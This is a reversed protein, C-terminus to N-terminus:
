FIPAVMKKRLPWDLAAGELVVPIGKKVYHSKFEKLSLDKRREIPMVCGEGIKPMTENLNKYYATRDKFFRKRGFFHDLIQM